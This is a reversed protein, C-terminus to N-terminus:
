ETVDLEPKYGLPFPDKATNRLTYGKGDEELLRKVTIIANNLYERSSSGWVKCGDTMQVKMINASIYIDLSKISGGKARYLATIEKLVDTAKHSIALIDDVYICLMEYYKFGDEHVAERICVDPDALTSVFDLYKM